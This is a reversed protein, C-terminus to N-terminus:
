SVKKLESMRVPAKRQGPIIEEKKDLTHVIRNIGSQNMESFNPMFRSHRVPEPKKGSFKM